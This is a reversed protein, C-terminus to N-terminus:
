FNEKWKLWLRVLGALCFISVAIILYMAFVRGLGIIPAGEGFYSFSPLGTAKSFLDLGASHYNQVLYYTAADVQAASTGSVGVWFIISLTGAVLGPFVAALRSRFVSGALIGITLGWGLIPLGNMLSFKIFFAVVDLPISVRFAEVFAGELVAFFLGLPILGIVAVTLGTGLIKGALYSGGSIPTSHLLEAVGFSRDAPLCAATAAPLLLFSTLVLTFWATPVSFVTTEAMTGVAQQRFIDVSYGKDTWKQIAAPDQLFHHLDEKAMSLNSLPNLLIAAGFVLGILLTTVVPGGRRLGFRFETRAIAIIQWFTKM